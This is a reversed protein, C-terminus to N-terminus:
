WESIRPPLPDATFAMRHSLETLLGARHVLRRPAHCLNRTEEPDADLNYLEDDGHAHDVVLKLSRSHFPM